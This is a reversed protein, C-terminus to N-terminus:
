GGSAPAAAWSKLGISSASQRAVSRIARSTRSFAISHRRAPTFCSPIVANWSITLSSGFDSRSPRSATRSSARASFMIWLLGGAGASSAACRLAYAVSSCSTTACAAVGPASRGHSISSTAAWMAALRPSTAFAFARSARAVLARVPSGRTAACALALRASASAM